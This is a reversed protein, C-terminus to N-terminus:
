KPFLKNYIALLKHIHKDWSYNELIKKRGKRGMAEREEWSINILRKIQRALDDASNINFLLGDVNNEVRKRVGPFDGVIVPCGASLAEAAVLSFSEAAGASPVVLCRAQNYFYNLEQRTVGSAIFQVQSTINLIQAIKKYKNINYGGSVVRLIVTPDGVAKIARMLFDLRKFPLPNGVFLVIKKEIFDDDTRKDLPFFIKDDVGNAIEIHTRNKHRKGFKSNAFHDSDVTVIIDAMRLVLYSVTKDYITQVARKIVGVPLADM